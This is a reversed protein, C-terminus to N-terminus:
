RPWIALFNNRVEGSLDNLSYVVPDPLLLAYGLFFQSDGLVAWGSRTRCIVAQNTGEKASNVREDILTAM